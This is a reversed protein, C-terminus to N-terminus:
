MCNRDQKWRACDTYRSAVPQVGSSDSNSDLKTEGERRASQSQPGALRMDLLYRPSKGRSYLPRFTFSVVWRWSTGLDLIRPDICGSRWVDEHRLALTTLCLSISKGKYYFNEQIQMNQSQPNGRNSYRKKTTVWHYKVHRTASTVASHGHPFHLEVVNYHAM